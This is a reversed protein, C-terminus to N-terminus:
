GRAPDNGWGDGTLGGGGANSMNNYSGIGYGGWGDSQSGGFDVYDGMNRNFSDLVSKEFGLDYNGWGLTEGSQAAPTLSPAPTIGFVSKFSDLLGSFPNAVPSFGFDFSSKFPSPLGMELAAAKQIQDYAMMAYNDTGLLGVMGELGAPASARGTSVAGMYDGLSGFSSPGRPGQQQAQQQPMVPAPPRIAPRLAPTLAVPQVPPLTPVPAPVEEPQLAQEPTGAVVSRPQAQPVRAQDKTPAGLRQAERQLGLRMDQAEVSRRARDTEDMSTGYQNIASTFDPASSPTRTPDLSFGAPAMGLAGAPAISMGMEPSAMTMSPAANPMYSDLNAAV